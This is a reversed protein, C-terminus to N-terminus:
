DISFEEKLSPKPLIKFTYCSLFGIYNLQIQLLQLAEGGIQLIIKICPCFRKSNIKKSIENKRKSLKFDIREQNASEQEEKELKNLKSNKM